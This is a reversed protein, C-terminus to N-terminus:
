LIQSWNGTPPSPAVVALDLFPAGQVQIRALLIGWDGLGAGISAALWIALFEELTGTFLAGIALLITWFPLLLSVFAISECFALILVLPPAWARNHQAFQTITEAIDQLM